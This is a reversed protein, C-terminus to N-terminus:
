ELISNRCSEIIKMRDILLPKENYYNSFYKSNEFSIGFAKRQEQIARGIPFKEKAVSCDARLIISKKGANMFPKFCELLTAFIILSYYIAVAFPIHDKRKGQLNFDIDKIKEVIDLCLAYGMLILANFFMNMIPENMEMTKIKHSVLSVLSERSINYIFHKPVYIVPSFLGFLSIDNRFSNKYDGFKGYFNERTLIRKTDFNTINELYFSLNGIEEVLTFGLSDVNVFVFPAILYIIISAPIFIISVFLAISINCGCNSIVSLLVCILFSLLVFSGFKIFYSALSVDTKVFYKNAIMLSLAFDCPIILLVFVLGSYTLIFLYNNNLKKWVPKVLMLLLINLVLSACQVVIESRLFDIYNNYVSYDTISLFSNENYNQVLYSIEIAHLTVNIAFKVLLCGVLIKSINVFQLYQDTNINASKSSLLYKM